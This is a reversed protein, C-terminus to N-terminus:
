LLEDLDAQDLANVLEFGVLWEGNPQMTSHIVRAALEFTKTGSASKIQIVGFLGAELPQSLCLGIGKVSLDIAWGKLPVHPADSLLVRTVTAPACAYRFCARRNLQRAAQGARLSLYQHTM